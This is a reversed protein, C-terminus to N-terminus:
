AIGSFGAAYRLRIVARPAGYIVCAHPCEDPANDDALISKLHMAAKRGRLAARADV